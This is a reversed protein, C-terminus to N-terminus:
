VHGAPRPDICKYWYRKFVRPDTMDISQTNPHDLQQIVQNKNRQDKDNNSTSTQEPKKPTLYHSDSKPGQAPATSPFVQNKNPRDKDNNSTSTQESKKPTPHHSDSKPGQAPATSPFVPMQPPPTSFVKPDPSAAFSTPNSNEILSSHSNHQGRNNNTLHFKFVGEQKWVRLSVDEYTKSLSIFFGALDLLGASDM